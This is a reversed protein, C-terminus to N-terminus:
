KKLIYKSLLLFDTDNKSRGREHLKNAFTSKNMGIFNAAILITDFVQKTKVNIVKVAGPNKEGIRLKNNDSTAKKAKETKKNLGTKFAHVINDKATCWELNSVHNNLKDGDIHNVQPKNEPNPIFAEAVLRHVRTTKQKYGCPLAISNYKGSVNQKLFRNTITSYVRGDNYIIYRENGKIKM